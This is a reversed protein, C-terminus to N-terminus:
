SNFSMNKGERVITTQNKKAQLQNSLSFILIQFSSRVFFLKNYKSYCIYSRRSWSSKSINLWCGRAPRVRKKEPILAEKKCRISLGCVGAGHTSSTKKATNFLQAIRDGSDDFLSWNDQRVISGETRRWKQNM